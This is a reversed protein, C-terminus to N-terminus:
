SVLRTALRPDICKCGVLTDFSIINTKTKIDYGYVVRVSMGEFSISGSNAGAPAELPAMVLAFANPVFSLGCAYEGVLTLTVAAGAAVAKPLAPFIGVQGSASLNAAVAFTGPVGAISIIDGCKLTAGGSLTLNLTEAKASATSGVTIAGQTGSVHTQVNQDMYWDIGMIRGMSAERLATGEDGRADARAVAEIGFLGEKQFPNVISNRRSQPVKQVNLARDVATLDALAGPVHGAGWVFTPVQVYKSLIYQDLKEGLAVMAPVVIQKSFDELELTMEKSTVPVSIDIHKELVLDLSKEDANQLVIEGEFDKADFAAPKRITVTDGKKQGAFEKEYDRYVLSGAVCNSRLHMLSENAVVKPLIFTNPM